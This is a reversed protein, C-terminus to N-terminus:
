FDGPSPIYLPHQVSSMCSQSKPLSFAHRLLYLADHSYVLNEDLMELCKIKAGLIANISALEGIPSGLLTADEPKIAFPLSRHVSLMAQESVGDRCIVESKAHNLSLGLDIAAAEIFKLDEIVYTFPGSLTGDDL